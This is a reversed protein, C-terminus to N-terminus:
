EKARWATYPMMINDLIKLNEKKYYSVITSHLLYATPEWIDDSPGYYSNLEGFITRNFREDEGNAVANCRISFPNKTKLIRCVDQFIKSM